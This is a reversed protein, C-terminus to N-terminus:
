TPPIPPYIKAREEEPKWTLAFIGGLFLFLFSLLGALSLFSAIIALIGGSHVRDPDGMLVFAVVGLIGGLFPTIICVTGELYYGQLFAAFGFISFFIGPLFAIAAGIITLTRATDAGNGM